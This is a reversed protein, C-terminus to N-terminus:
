ELVRDARVLLSPPVTLGLARATKLNIVLEFTTPQEMPLDAPKAGRLIKDVHTAARRVMEDINPGYTFLAGGDTWAGWGTALLLRHQAAFDLIRQRQLSMLRSSVVILAEARERVATQLAADIDGPRRAELSVVRMGLRSALAQTERFDSDAHDPNWLVAVRSLRPAIEHLMELRKGALDSLLFTVGTVNGGPRRLSAVLGGEVPDNSVTAVIPITATAKKAYPAVDGGAAYILDPRLRVLEEALDPLREFKGEAFRYEITLNRGEVWGLGRLAERLVPVNADTSPSSYLLVGMRASKTTQARAGPTLAAAIAQM